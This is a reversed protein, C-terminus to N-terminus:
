PAIRTEVHYLRQVATDVPVTYLNQPPTAPLDASHAEGAQIFDPQGVVRYWRNSVSPWRLVIGTVHLIAQTNAGGTEPDTVIEYGFNTGTIDCAGIRFISAPDTPVTGAIYEEWTAAGDGDQDGSAAADFDNTFGHQLLWPISAGNTTLAPSFEVRLAGSSSINSWAFSAGSGSYPGAAHVGNTLVEGIRYYPDATLKFDLAGGHMVVVRGTPSISGGQSASATIIHSSNHLAIPIKQVPTVPDNGTLRLFGRRTEDPEMQITSVSLSASNSRLPATTGSGQRVVLWTSSGSYPQVEIDDLYWGEHVVYGDSGFTFRIMIEKGAYAALDFEVRTWDNSGAFCPTGDPFASASHGFIVYPYGGVPTIQAYSAGANTSIEVLGGDWAHAADKLEETWLWHWFVLKCGAPALLAPTVLSAKASDPYLGAQESGFYWSNSGSHARRASIHWVDNTGSHGWENTGGEAGDGFGETEAKLTWALESHGANQVNVAIYATRKDPLEITGYDAPTGIMRAYRVDIGYPGNNGTLGSKDFAVIQYDIHDGTVGPEPISQVFSNAATGPTMAARQWAGNNRRWDLFVDRVADNDTVVATVTWPAPTTQVGSLPAHAISPGRPFSDPDRPNARDQYEKINSYGDGDDDMNPACGGTGFYRWEWWDPLGDGDTDRAEPLYIAGVFEFHNMPIGTAPNQAESTPDPWRAGNWSWMCFRQLNTDSGTSDPALVTQALSGARWWTSTEILGPVIATQMLEYATDWQWVLTSDQQLTFVTWNRDGAASVSGSGKWGTCVYRTHNSAETQSEAEARVTIGSPYLESGYVPAVVGAEVPYGTVTLPVPNVVSFEFLSAPAASPLIATLNNTTTATIQYFVTVGRPQPPIQGRYRSGGMNQMVSTTFNGADGTTNWALTVGNTALPWESTVDAEVDIPAVYEVTNQVPIHEIRPLARSGSALLAFPQGLGGVLSKASVTVRYAGPQPTRLYVQEVNDVANDGTTAAAAPNTASLLYPMLVAGDPAIIRLDLDNVLVPSRDDLLTRPEGPPDTWCLTVRIPNVNDWVFSFENTVASSALEGEAMRLANTWAAAHRIHEVAALTNMLGWGFRADPGINGLDDATHIILGKLLSSRMAGGPHLQNYCQTLLVASGAASPTSMSTGSSTQYEQDGGGYTSYLGVGNAVIDPKVRGDDTPGWCSFGSMSAAALSRNTGSVADNVAGVTMVNKANADFALTDYGGADWNDSPPDTAPDYTKTKWGGDYYSFTSGTFPASDNRDNGAAKFPLYYPAALCIADVTECYTDYQGFGSAEHEGWTGYWFTGGSTYSWGAQFGYSHNSIGIRNTEGPGAMAAEAMEASDYDWDYSDIRVAPAMGKAAPSVGRAGITGGVHTSHNTVPAANRATVRGDFEVHTPRVTGQDWVAVTVGAGDLNYPATQRVRDAATSIAANRNFTTRVYVQGNRLAVVDAPDLGAPWDQGRMAKLALEHELSERKRLFEAAHKRAEPSRFDRIERSISSPNTPFSTVARFTGRPTGQM